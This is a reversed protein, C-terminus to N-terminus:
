KVEALVDDDIKIKANKRIRKLWNRFAVEQSKELLKAHIIEKSEEFTKQSAPMKEIVKFVHFGYPTNIIRSVEGVKLKFVPDFEEPLTGAELNGMDGGEMSEPSISYIRALDSFDSDEEILKIIRQAEEEKKVLIHLARIQEGRKFEEPHEEFYRKIENDGINVTSNVIEAILKKILLRSELKQEWEKRSVEAMELTRQFTEAPYGEMFQIRFTNLEDESVSINNKGAEQRFLTEEILENLTNVKLWLLKDQGLPESSNVRFKKKSFDFERQLAERSIEDGNVHAVVDKRPPAESLLEQQRECGTLVLIGALLLVAVGNWKGIWKSNKM